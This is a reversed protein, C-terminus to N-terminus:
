TRRSLGLHTAKKFDGRPHRGPSEHGVHGVSFEPEVGTGRGWGAEGGPDGTGTFSMVTRSSTWM